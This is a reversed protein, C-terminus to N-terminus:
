AHIWSTNKSSFWNQWILGKTSKGALLLLVFGVLISSRVKM